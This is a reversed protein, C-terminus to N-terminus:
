WGDAIPTRAEYPHPAFRTLDEAATPREVSRATFVRYEPRSALVPPSLWADIASGGYAAVVIGVPRGTAARLRRAFFYATASFDRAHAPTTPLWLGTVTAAPEDAPQRAVTFCRLLPDSAAAIDAELGSLMGLTWEMNSQGSCLWVEGFHIDTCRRIEGAAEVVLEHPGGAAQSPFPASWRGHADATTTVIASALTVTVPALPAATGRITLPKECQLVAHDGCLPHLTLM